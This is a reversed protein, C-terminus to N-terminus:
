KTLGPFFGPCRLHFSLTMVKNSYYFAEQVGEFVLSYASDLYFLCICMMCSIHYVSLVVLNYKKFNTGLWCRFYFLFNLFEIFIQLRVMEM